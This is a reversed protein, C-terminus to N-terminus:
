LGTMQACMDVAIMKMSTKKIWASALVRMYHMYQLCYPYFRKRLLVRLSHLSVDGKTKKFTHGLFYVWMKLLHLISKKRKICSLALSHHFGCTGRRRRQLLVRVKKFVYLLSEKNQRYLTSRDWVHISGHRFFIANFTIICKIQTKKIHRGAVWRQTLSAWSSEHNEDHAHYSLM